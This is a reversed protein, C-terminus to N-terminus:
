RGTSVSTVDLQLFQGNWAAPAPPVGDIVYPTCGPGPNMCNRIASCNRDFAVFTLKAGGAIPITKVHDVTFVYHSTGKGEDGNFYYTQKPDSVELSYVNYDENGAPQGGLYFHKGDAAGGAYTRPEVVGRVRIGVDYVSGQGGGFTVTKKLMYYGDSPCGSAPANVCVEDNEALQGCTLEWRQGNLAAAVALDGGAGDPQNSRADVAGGDNRTGVGSGANGGGGAIGSTGAGSATQGALGGGGAAGGAGAEGAAGGRGGAGGLGGGSGARGAAGARGGESGSGSSGSKSSCALPGLVLVVAVTLKPKM